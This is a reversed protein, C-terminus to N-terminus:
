WVYGAEDGSVVLWIRLLCGQDCIPLAGNMVSPRWYRREFTEFRRAYEAEDSGTLAHDPFGSLDNWAERLAFPEAIQGVFDGWRFDEDMTGLPHIGCYPGAGGNGLETLFRRYEVPLGIAHRQEFALVDTEVLPPNLTFDHGNAGFIQPEAIRLRQLADRIAVPDFDSM